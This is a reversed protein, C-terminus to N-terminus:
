GYKHSFIDSIYNRLDADFRESSFKQSNIYCDLPKIEIKLFRNLTKILSEATLEDFFLGTKGSIITEKFGGGKYAIVPTGNAQAEVASIGFDENESTCILAIAEKYLNVLERDSVYGTFEITPGSIKKLMDLYDPDTGHGTIKLQSKLANAAEIIIEIKKNKNIRSVSLFYKGKGKVPKKLPLIVPPYIVKSKIAFKNKLISSMYKSNTLINSTTRLAKLFPPRLLFSYDILSQLRNKEVLGFINKPPCHIYQLFIPKKVKVTNSMLYSSSSIVLDYNELNLRSWLFPATLQLVSGNFRFKVPLIVKKLQSTKGKFFIDTIRPNAALTYVDARPFISLIRSTVREAGGIELFSDHVVACKINALDTYQNSM